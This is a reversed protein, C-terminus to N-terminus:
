NFLLLDELINWVSNYNMVFDTLVVFCHRYEGLIFLAVWFHRRIVITLNLELINIVSKFHHEVLIYFIQLQQSLIGPFHLWFDGPGLSSNKSLLIIMRYVSRRKRVKSILILDVQIKWSISIFNLTIVRAQFTTFQIVLIHEQIRYVELFSSESDDVFTNLLYFNKLLLWHIEIIRDFSKFRAM